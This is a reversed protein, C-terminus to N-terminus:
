GAELLFAHGIADRETFRNCLLFFLDVQGFLSGGEGLERGGNHSSVTWEGHFTSRRGGEM